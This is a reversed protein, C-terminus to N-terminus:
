QRRGERWDPDIWAWRFAVQDVFNVALDKVYPKQLSKLTYVYLPVVAAKELVEREADRVLALREVRDATGEARAILADFTSTCFRTRNDPSTCKFSSLFETEPDPFNGIGGMRAVDYEGNITDKLFTKWEQSELKVDLGLQTSWQRQLYEAILKHGEVGSNFKITFGKRFSAGM